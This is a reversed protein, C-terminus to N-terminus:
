ISKLVFLIGERGREGVERGEKDMELSKEEFVFRLIYMRVCM